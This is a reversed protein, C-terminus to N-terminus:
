KQWLLCKLVHVKAKSETQLIGMCKYHGCQLPQVLHIDCLVGASFKLYWGKTEDEEGTRVEIEDPLAIVPEFHPDHSNNATDDACREDESSDNKDKGKTSAKQKPSNSFV